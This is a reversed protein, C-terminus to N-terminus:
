LFRRVEVVKGALRLDKPKVEIPEFDPNEPMLFVRKKKGEGEVLLRKVTASEGVMAVVIDGSDASGQRRTIVVDGPLIGADRMSQGKVRLAFLEEGHRERDIQVYGEIDEVAFTLSGAQVHGLIPIKQGLPRAEPPLAYSRSHGKQKVLRGEAVLAELHIRASEVAKFGVAKQVERVTPPDGAQLRDFVYQYIMERKQKKSM